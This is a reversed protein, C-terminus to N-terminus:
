FVGHTASAGPRLDQEEDHDDNHHSPNWWCVQQDPEEFSLTTTFTRCLSRWGSSFFTSVM